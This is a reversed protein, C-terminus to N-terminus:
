VVSKRDTTYYQDCCSGYDNSSAVMHLPDTPDVVINPENNPFPDDCDLNVNATPDGTATCEQVGPLNPPSKQTVFPQKLGNDEDAHVPSAVLRAFAISLGAAFILVRRSM